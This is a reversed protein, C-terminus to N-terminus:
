RRVRICRRDSRSRSSSQRNPKGAEGTWSATDIGAGGRIDDAGAGGILLDDGDGGSLWDDDDGGHLTDDGLWGLLWDAGGAGDYTGDEVGMFVRNSHDDGATLLAATTAFEYSFDSHRGASVIASLVDGIVPIRSAAMDLINTRVTGLTQEIDSLDEVQRLTGDDDAFGDIISLLPDIVRTNLDDSFDAVDKATQFEQALLDFGGDTLADTITTFLGTKLAGAVEAKLADYGRGVIEVVTGSADGAVSTEWAFTTLDGRALAAEDVDYVPSTVLMDEEEAGVSLTYGRSGTYEASIEYTETYEVIEEPTTLAELTEEVPRLILPTPTYAAFPDPLAVLTSRDITFGTEETLEGALDYISYWIVPRFDEYVPELGNAALTDTILSTYSSISTPETSGPLRFTGFQDLRVRGTFNGEWDLIPDEGLTLDGDVLYREEEVGVNPLIQPVGKFAVPDGNFIDTPNTADEYEQTWWQTAGDATAIEFSTEFVPTLFFELGPMEFTQGGAVFSYEQVYVRMDFAAHTRSFGEGTVTPTLVEFTVSQDKFPEAELYLFTVATM